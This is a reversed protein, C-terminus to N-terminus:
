KSGIFSKVTKLHKIQDDITPLDTPLSIFSILYDLNKYKFPNRVFFRILQEVYQCLKYNKMEINLPTLGAHAAINRASRLIELHQKTLVRDEYFFSVRKIIVKTDDSKVLREIVTWLKLFRYGLDNVDTANIYGKLVDFLHEKFPSNRLSKLMKDLHVEAEDHNRIAIARHDRFDEEYWIKNCARVGTELHLTHVKGLSLVSNSPYQNRKKNALFNTSKSFSIQWSARLIDLAGVSLKFATDIDPALVSVIVYLYDNQDKLDLGSHDAILGDRHSRYKEPMKKVFRVSCNDIKRAKVRHTNRISISTVLYYKRKSRLRHSCLKDFEKLILAPDNLRDIKYAAFISKKFDSFLIDQDFIYKHSISGYLTDISFEIGYKHSVSGESNINIDDRIAKLVDHLLSNNKWQSKM